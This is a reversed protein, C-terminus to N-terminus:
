TKSKRAILDEIVNIFKSYNRELDFEKDYIFRSDNFINKINNKKIHELFDILEKASSYTFGVKEKSILKEVSGKLSSLIPTSLRLYDIVKNPISMMFDDTSHYPALAMDSKKLVMDVKDADIWNFVKFNNLQKSIETLYNKQEGDGFFLFNIDSRKKFLEFAVEEIVKFDFSRSFTGIFVINISNEQFIDLEDLWSNIKSEQVKNLTNEMSTLTLVYSDKEPSNAYNKAWDCFEESISCILDVNRITKKSLFYLPSLIIRVLPQFFKGFVQTFIIPWQDKIDIVIPINKKKFFTTIVYSTFIPPYGVFVVDPQFTIKKLKRILNLGLFCHDVLRAISINKKYGPSDLLITNDQYFEECNQYRHIKKQHYFNSSIILVENHGMKLLSNKLNMARMPRSINSDISLPEGTQFILVKM